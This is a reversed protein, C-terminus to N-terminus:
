LTLIASVKKDSAGEEEEINENADRVQQALVQFMHTLNGLRHSEDGGVLTNTVYDHEIGASINASDQALVGRRQHVTWGEREARRGLTRITEINISYAKDNLTSVMEATKKYIYSIDPLKMVKAVEKYTSSSTRALFAISWNLLAPHIKIKKGRGTGGKAYVEDLREKHIQWLELEEEAGGKQLVEVVSDNAISIAKKAKLAESRRMWVGSEKLDKEFVKQANEKRLAANEARLARIEIDALAPDKAIIGIKTKNKARDPHPSHARKVYKKATAQKTSCVSCRPSGDQCNLKCEEHRFVFGDPLHLTREMMMGRYPLFMRRSNHLCSKTFSSIGADPEAAMRLLEHATNLMTRGAMSLAHGFYGHAIGNCPVVAIESQKLRKPRRELTTTDAHCVNHLTPVSAPRPAPNSTSTSAHPRVPIPRSPISAPRPTTTTSEASIPCFQNSETGPTQQSPTKYATSISSSRSSSRIRRSSERPPPPTRVEQGKRPRGRVRKKPVQDTSSSVTGSDQPPSPSLTGGDNNKNTAENETTAVSHLSHFASTNSREVTATDLHASSSSSTNIPDDNPLSAAGSATADQNASLVM